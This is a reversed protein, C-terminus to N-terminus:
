FNCVMQLSEIQDKFLPSLAFDNHKKCGRKRVAHIQSFELKDKEEYVLLLCTYAGTM